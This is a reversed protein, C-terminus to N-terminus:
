VITQEMEDDSSKKKDKKSKLDRHGLKRSGDLEEAFVVSLFVSLYVAKLINM